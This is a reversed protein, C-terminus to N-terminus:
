NFNLRQGAGARKQRLMGAPKAVQEASELQMQDMNGIINPSAKVSERAQVQDSAVNREPSVGMLVDGVRALPM